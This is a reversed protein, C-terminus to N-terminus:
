ILQLSHTKRYMRQLKILSAKGRIWDSEWISYYNYGLEKCRNQKIQTNQYLEGFTKKCVLNMEDPNYIAINGHYYDGNYEYICSEKHSFGDAKYKSKPIRYEGDDHNLIHRIDPTSVKIFELWQVQGYSYGIKKFKSKNWNYDPYVTKLLKFYRWDYYRGLLQSGYNEEFDIIGINYWDKLNTYGKIKGLYEVYKKHNEINPYKQSGWVGKITRLSGDQLLYLFWPINNSSREEIRKDVNSLQFLEQCESCGCINKFHSYANQYFWINHTNCKINIKSSICDYTEHVRSYDFKDGFLKFAKSMFDEISTKQQEHTKETSCKKCGAGCKHSDAEVEFQGHHKCIVVIKNKCNTYVTLSYDYIFNHKINCAKIFDEQSIQRSAEVIKRGCYPCGVGKKHNAPTIRFDGHERCTVTMKTHNNVYDEVMRSYEYKNNNAENFFSILEDRSMTDMTKKGTKHRKCKFIKTEYLTRFSYEYEKDCDDESCIGCLSTNGNLRGKYTHQLLNYENEMERLRELTYTRRM